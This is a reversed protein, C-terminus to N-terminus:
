REARAVSRAGRGPRDAGCPGREVVDLRVDRKWRAKVQHMDFAAIGAELIAKVRGV